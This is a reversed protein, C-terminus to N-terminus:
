SAKRLRIQIQSFNRVGRVRDSEMLLIGWDSKSSAGLAALVVVGGPGQGHGGAEQGAPLKELAAEPNRVCGGAM